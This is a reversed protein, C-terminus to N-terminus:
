QTPIRILRPAFQTQNGSFCTSRAAGHFGGRLPGHDNDIVLPRIGIQQLLQQRLVQVAVDLRERTRAVSKCGQGLKIWPYNDRIVVHRLQVPELKDGLSGQERRADREDEDGSVRESHHIPLFQQRFSPSSIM